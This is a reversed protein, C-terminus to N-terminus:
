TRVYRCLLYSEDALVHALTVPLTGGGPLPLGGTM